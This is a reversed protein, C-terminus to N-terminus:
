LKEIVPKFEALAQEYVPRKFDIVHKIMEDVAVWEFDVFEQFHDGQLNFSSDNGTLLFLFWKQSQGKFKKPIRGRAFSPFDYTYWNKSEAILTATQPTLGVEEYLERWVAQVPTEGPDIGGQPVQKNYRPDLSKGARTGLWIKHDLRVILMAVNKRYPKEIMTM